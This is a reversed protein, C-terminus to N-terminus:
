ASNCILIIKIPIRIKSWLWTYKDNMVSLATIYQVSARACLFRLTRLFIWCLKFCFHKIKWFPLSKSDFEAIWKDFSWLSGVKVVKQRTMVELPGRLLRRRDISQKFIQCPWCIRLIIPVLRVIEFYKNWEIEISNNICRSIHIKWFSKKCM